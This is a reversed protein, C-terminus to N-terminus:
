VRYLIRGYSPYPWADKSVLTELEDVVTRLADMAPCVMERYYRARQEMSGQGADQLVHELAETRAYADDCLTSIRQLKTGM